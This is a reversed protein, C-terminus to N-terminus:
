LELIFTTEATCLVPEELEFRGYFYTIFTSIHSIRYLFILFETYQLDAQRNALM